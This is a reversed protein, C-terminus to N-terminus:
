KQKVFTSKLGGVRHFVTDKQSNFTVAVDAAYDIFYGDSKPDLKASFGHEDTAVLHKGDNTFTLIRDDCKYVGLYNNIQTSDLAIYSLNPIPFEQGSMAQTISWFVSHVNVGVGNQLMTIVNGDDYNMFSLYSDISGTHSIILKGDESKIGAVGCGYGEVYDTMQNFVYDGFFKNKLAYTYKQLDQTTSVLSGSGLYALPHTKKAIVWGEDYKYSKTAITDGSFCFTHKLGLPEVIQEKILQSYSKSNLDEVIFALLMYGTNSYSFKEGPEFNSKLTSFRQLMSERTQPEYSFEIEKQNVENLYDQIGSRHHLLHYITIKDANHINADPFFQILKDDMSLKGAEIAKLTLIATFSKSISGIKFLTTDTIPTKTEVDSYGMNKSFILSDGKTIMISGMLRPSVSDFYVELDKLNHGTNPSKETVTSKDDVQNSSTCSAGCLIAAIMPIFLKHKMPM